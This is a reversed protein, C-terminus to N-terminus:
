DTLVNSILNTQRFPENLVKTQKLTQVNWVGQAFATNCFQLNNAPQCLM